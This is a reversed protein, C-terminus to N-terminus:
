SLKLVGRAEALADLNNKAAMNKDSYQRVITLLSREEANKEKSASFAVLQKPSTGKNIGIYKKNYGLEKTIASFSTNSRGKATRRLEKIAQLEEKTAIFIEKGRNEYSDRISSACHTIPNIIVIKAANLPLDIIHKLAKIPIKIFGFLVGFAGKIAARPLSSLTNCESGIELLRYVATHLFSVADDIIRVPNLFSHLLNKLANHRIFIEEYSNVYFLDKLLPFKFVIKILPLKMNVRSNIRKFGEAIDELFKFLPSFNLYSNLPLILALNKFWYFESLDFFDRKAIVQNYLTHENKFFDIDNELQTSLQKRALNANTGPIFQLLTGFGYYQRTVLKYLEYAGQLSQALDEQYKDSLERKAEKFRHYIVGPFLYFAM